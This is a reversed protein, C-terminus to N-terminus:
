PRAEQRVFEPPDYIDPRLEHRPIGTIQEVDRVRDVPIRTWQSVAQLSIVEDPKGRAKALQTIERALKAPGAAAKIARKVIKRHNMGFLNLRAQWM